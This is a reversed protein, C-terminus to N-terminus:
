LQSLSLSLTLLWLHEGFIIESAALGGVGFVFTTTRYFYPPARFGVLGTTRKCEMRTSEGARRDIIKEYSRNEYSLSYVSSPRVNRKDQEGYKSSMERLSGM